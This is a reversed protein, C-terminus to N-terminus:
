SILWGIKGEPWIRTVAIKVAYVYLIGLYIAILPLAVNPVLIRLESPYGKEEIHQPDEPVAAWFFLVSVLYAIVCWVSLYIKSEFKIAFLPDLSWIGVAIGAFLLGAYAVTLIARAFLAQNYRWFAFQDRNFLFPATAVALHVILLLILLRIFFVTDTLGQHTLLIATLM